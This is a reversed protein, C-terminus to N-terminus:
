VQQWEDDGRGGNRIQSFARNEIKKTKRPFIGIAPFDLESLEGRLLFTRQVPAVKAKATGKTLLIIRKSNKYEIYFKLKNQDIPSSAKPKWTDLVTWLESVTAPARRM